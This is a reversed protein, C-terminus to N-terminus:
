NVKKDDHRHAGLKAISEQRQKNEAIRDLRISYWEGLQMLLVGALMATIIVNTAGIVQVVSATEQFSLPQFSYNEVKRYSEADFVARHVISPEDPRALVRMNPISVAVYMLVSGFYLLLSLTGFYKDNESWRVLKAVIGVMGISFVTHILVSVSLPANYMSLYFSIAKNVAAESVQGHFLLPYDYSSTIYLLSALVFGTRFGM